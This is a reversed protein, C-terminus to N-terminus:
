LRSNNGKKGPIRRLSRGKLSRVATEPKTDQSDASSAFSRNMDATGNM